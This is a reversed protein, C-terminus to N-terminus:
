PPTRDGPFYHRRVRAAQASLGAQELRALAWAVGADVTPVVVHPAATPAVHFILSLVMRLFPSAVVFASGLVYQRLLPEHEKTWTALQQRQEPTPLVLHRIDFISVYRERRLLTAHGHAFFEEYQRDSVAGELRLLLLPWLSDDYSFPTSMRETSPHDCVFGFGDGEEPELGRYIVLGYDNLMASTADAQLVVILKV